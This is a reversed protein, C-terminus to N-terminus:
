CKRHWRRGETLLLCVILSFTESKLPWYAVLEGVLWDVSRFLSQAFRNSLLPYQALIECTARRQCEGSWTGGHKKYVQPLHLLLSALRLDLPRVVDMVADSDLDNDDADDGSRMKVVPTASKNVLFWVVGALLSLTGMVGNPYTAAISQAGPSVKELHNPHYGGALKM